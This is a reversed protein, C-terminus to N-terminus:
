WSCPRGSLTRRIHVAGSVLGDVEGQVLMMTGLVVTDELGVKAQLPTLGKNKRIAVMPQVYKRRLPEPDIIEIDGNLEIGHSSAVVRIKAPGGLLICHAIGKEACITAAKLTRPEDGEPLVIIQRAARATEVLRHRFVPPPMLEEAPQGIRKALPRTDIREALFSVVRDMRQLDTKGIHKSLNAFRIATTLTDDTTGLLPLRDLPPSALISLVEPAPHGGCTFLFGALPMGRQAILATALIADSRDAPTIVLTGPRLHGLLKEPSRAAILPAQVRSNEIEGRHLIELGLSEAIDIVRPASLSPVYPTAALIPVPAVDPRVQLRGVGTLAAAGAESCYNVMIGAIPRRGDDGYQEIATATRAALIDASQGKGALVPIIDAALSRIIEINLRTVIQLNTDPILGEVVIVDRGDRIKEVLDVVEEMLGGLQGSRVMEAAHEFPIADPAKMSCLARAFHLSQDQEDRGTEPQAIPKVFAVRVGALQFSRVLGLAMSTLGADSSVPILYFTRYRAQMSM